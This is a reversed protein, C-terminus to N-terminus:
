PTKALTARPHEGFLAFYAGSFRGLHWFSWRMAVEAVTTKGSSAQILDRRAANLRRTRLWHTPSIGAHQKFLQQLQKVSVGAIHAMELMNLSDHPRDRLREIVHQIAERVQVTQAERQEVELGQELM